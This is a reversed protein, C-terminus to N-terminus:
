NLFLRLITNLGPNFDKTPIFASYRDFAFTCIITQLELPLKLNIKYFRNMQKQAKSERKGDKKLQLYDDSLLVVLALLAAADKVNLKLEKRLNWRIKSQRIKTEKPDDSPEYAKILGYIGFLGLEHAREAATRATGLDHHRKLNALVDVYHYSALMMKVVEEHGYETAWYLPTAGDADAQNVDVDPHELILRVMPNGDKAACILCTEGQIIPQNVRLRPHQLLMSVIKENSFGLAIFLPTTKKREL